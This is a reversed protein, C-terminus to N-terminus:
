ETETTLYIYQCPNVSGVLKREFRNLLMSPYCELYVPLYKIKYTILRGTEECYTSSTRIEVKGYDGGAVRVAKKIQEETPNEIDSIIRDYDDQSFM